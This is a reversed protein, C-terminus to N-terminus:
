AARRENRLRELYPGFGHEGLWFHLMNTVGRSTITAGSLGDVEYPDEAPPGAKGKIVRIEVEGDAGYVKRGPWLKKWNPNDVEGGLGPTEGHDYFTLGRITELDADLAVFGYLTSWLGYGEIPLVIMEVEGDDGLVEFIQAHNPLRKVRAPNDPAPFSTAPNKKERQQDFNTADVGEVEEGTKLDIVKARVRQFREQIEAASLREGPQALGAAELVNKQKDLAKNVIQREKLTVASASVLIAGAICVATSFLVIYRVSYQM